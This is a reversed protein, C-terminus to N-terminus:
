HGLCSNENDPYIYLKSLYGCSYRISRLLSSRTTAVEGEEDAASRGGGRRRRVSSPGTEDVLRMITARERIVIIVNYRRTRANLIIKRM